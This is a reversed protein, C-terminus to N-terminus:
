ELEDANRTCFPDDFLIFHMVTWPTRYLNHSETPDGTMDPTCLTWDLGLRQIMAELELKV